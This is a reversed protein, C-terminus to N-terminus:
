SVRTIYATPSFIPASSQIPRHRRRLSRQRRSRTRLRREATDLQRWPPPLPSPSPPDGYKHIYERVRQITTEISDGWNQIFVKGEVLKSPGITVGKEKMLIELSEALATTRESFSKGVLQEESIKLLWDYSLIDGHLQRAIEDALKRTLM